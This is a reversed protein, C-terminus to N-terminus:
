KNLWKSITGYISSIQLGTFKLSFLYSGLSILWSGWVFFELFNLIILRLKINVTHKKNFHYSLSKTGFKDLGTKGMIMLNADPM